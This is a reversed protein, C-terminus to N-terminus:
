RSALIKYSKLNEHSQINSNLLLMPSISSSNDHGRGK